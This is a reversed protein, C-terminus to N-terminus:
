KTVTSLESLAATKFYSDAFETLQFFRIVTQNSFHKELRKVYKKKLVMDEEQLKILDNVSKNSNINKEINLNVAKLIEIRKNTIQIKDYEYEDYLKWFSEIEEQPLNMNETLFVRKETKVQSKITQLDINQATSLSVTAVIMFIISITKQYM